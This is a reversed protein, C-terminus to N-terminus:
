DKIMFIDFITTHRVIKKQTLTEKIAVILEDTEETKWGDVAFVDLCFGDKTSYVNAEQINLGVESLLATLMLFRARFVPRKNPDACEDLIRWHLVVDEVKGDIDLDLLYRRPLREIHRAFRANFTPYALTRDHRGTQRLRGCIKRQVEHRDPDSAHPSRPPPSSEGTGEEWDEGVRPPRAPPAM